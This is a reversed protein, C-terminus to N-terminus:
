KRTCTTIREVDLTVLPPRHAAGRNQKDSQRFWNVSGRPGRVFAEFTVLFDAIVGNTYYDTSIRKWCADDSPGMFPLFSEPCSDSGLVGGEFNASLKATTAVRTGAFFEQNKALSCFDVLLPTTAIPESLRGLHVGAVMGAVFALSAAALWVLIRLRM